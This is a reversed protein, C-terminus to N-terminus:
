KDAGILFQFNHTLFRCEGAFLIQQRKNKDRREEKKPAERAGDQVYQVLVELVSEVDADRLRRENLDSGIQTIEDHGDRCAPEDVSAAIAQAYDKTQQQEANAGQKENGASLGAREIGIQSREEDDAASKHEELRGGVRINSLQSRGLSGGASEIEALREVSQTLEGGSEEDSLEEEVAGVLAAIDDNGVGHQANHHQAYGHHERADVQRFDLMLLCFFVLGVTGADHLEEAMMGHEDESEEREQGVLNGLNGDIAIEDVVHGAFAPHAVVGGGHDERHRQGEEHHAPEQATPNHPADLGLMSQETAGDAAHHANTRHHEIQALNGHHCQHAVIHKLGDHEGGDERQSQTSQAVEGLTGRRQEHHRGDTTATEEEHTENGVGGM